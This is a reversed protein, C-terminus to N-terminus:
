ESPIDVQDVGCTASHLCYDQPEYTPTVHKQSIYLDADGKSFVDITLM